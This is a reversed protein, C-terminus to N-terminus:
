VTGTAIADLLVPRGSGRVVLTIRVRRSASHTVVALVVRHRTRASRLDLTRVLAGNEYVSVTGCAACTTAVVALRRMLVVRSLTARDRVARRVTGGYAQGDALPGWGSAASFARDDLPASTCVAPSWAALNGARDRARVSLCYETGPTMPLSMTTATTLTRAAPYRWAGLGTVDSSTRYRVDHTAVGSGADTSRWRVTWWPGLTFRASTEM